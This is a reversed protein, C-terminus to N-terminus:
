LTRGEKEQIGREEEEGGCIRGRATATAIWGHSAIVPASSQVAKDILSTPRQAHGSWSEAKQEVIQKSPGATSKIGSREIRSNQIIRWM